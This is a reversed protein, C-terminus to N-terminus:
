KWIGSALTTPTVARDRSSEDGQKLQEGEVVPQVDELIDCGDVVVAERHGVDHQPDDDPGKDEPVDEDADHTPIRPRNADYFWM